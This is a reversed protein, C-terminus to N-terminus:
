KCVKAIEAMTVTATQASHQRLVQLCPQMRQTWNEQTIVGVIHQRIHGSADVVFSEPAGTLGLDLALKGKYDQAIVSFPNGYKELYPLADALEDKYNIGVFTVAGSEALQMMLPHELKCSPCWSGWVNIIYPSTPMDAPSVAQEPQLLNPLSFAPLPRNMVRDPIINTDDGLRFFMLVLLGVFLMLPLLWLARWPSKEPRQQAADTGTMDPVAQKSEHDTM